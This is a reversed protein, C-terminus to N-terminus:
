ASKKRKPAAKPIAKKALARQKSHRASKDRPAHFLSVVMSRVEVDTGSGQREHVSFFALVNKPCDRISKADPIAAKWDALKQKANPRKVLYLLLGAADDAFNGSAPRYRSILQLYGEEFNGDKKAEGIWTHQGRSITLDIHGGAKRDPDAVYGDRRLQLMFDLTLRDESDDKLLEANAQMAYIASDLDVYLQTVFDAYSGSAALNRQIANELHRDPLLSQLVAVSVTV